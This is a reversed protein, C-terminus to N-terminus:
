WTSRAPAVRTRVSNTWPKEDSGITKADYASPVRSAARSHFELVDSVPSSALWCRPPAAILLRSTFADFGLHGGIQTGLALSAAPGVPQDLSDEFRADGDVANPM